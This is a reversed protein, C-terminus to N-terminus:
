GLQGDRHRIVALAALAATETRLVLSGLSIARAGHATLQAIEGRSFGGEPGVAIALPVGAPLADLAAGLRTSREEEDLVLLRVGPQLAAVAATLPVPPAVRPVDARGCQKAAEEVIRKWRATREGRREPPPKVTTRETMMPAFASAGLETGKQLVWELKDAKPLAQLIIVERAAPETRAPGLRLRAAGEALTEIQADYARGRGDFVEVREGASLRLVRGLYHAEASALEITEPAPEPVPFHLRRTTV